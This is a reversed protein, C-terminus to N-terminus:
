YALNKSDDGVEKLHESAVQCAVCVALTISIPIVDATISLHVEKYALSSSFKLETCIFNHFSPSLDIM